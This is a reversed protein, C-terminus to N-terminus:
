RSIVIKAGPTTSHRDSVLGPGALVLWVVGAFALSQCLFAGMRVARRVGRNLAPMAPIDFSLPAVDALSAYSM